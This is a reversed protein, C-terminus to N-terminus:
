DDDYHEQQCTVCCNRDQKRKIPNGCHVCNSRRELLTLQSERTRDADTDEDSADESEDGSPEWGDHQYRLPM